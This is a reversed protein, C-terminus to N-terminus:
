IWTEQGLFTLASILPGLIIAVLLAQFVRAIIPWRGALGADAPHHLEPNVTAVTLMSPSTM